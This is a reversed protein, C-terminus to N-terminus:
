IKRLEYISDAIYSAVKDSSLDHWASNYYGQWGDPDKVTINEETLANCGFFANVGISTVSDGIVVSTLSSCGSFAIDGIVEVSDPIEISELSSCGNFAKEGISTVSNGIVVSTLSGCYFFAWSGISTVSDPIEISYLRSCGHFASDAIIKTNNHITYTSLNENVSEILAFYPNDKSGLYKCNDYENFQLKNCYSFAEYGISTVSDGIVVSTLSDCSIFASDGISTVSDPIEIYTIDTYEFANDYICTVPKGQYTDAIKAKTASGTYGIVEAYTGDASLDYTVGETPNFPFECTPCIDGGTTHAEKVPELVCGCITEFWHHTKDFSYEDDYTHPAFDGFETNCYYCVAKKTCTAEDGWDAYCDNTYIHKNDRSCTQTHTGDGNSVYEGYDHGLRSWEDYINYSDGCSCTYVTYGDDECTPAVTEGAIYDCVHEEDVTKDIGCGNACVATKTGDGNSVFDGYNHGIAVGNEFTETGKEGCKCSLYYLAKNVCDAKSKLYDEHIVQRDFVHTHGDTKEYGCICKGNEFTHQTSGKKEGCECELWHFESDFTYTVPYAHEHGQEGNNCASFLALLVCTAMLVTLIKVFRSKM